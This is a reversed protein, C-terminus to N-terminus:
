LQQGEEPLRQWRSKARELYTPENSPGTGAILKEFGPMFAYKGSHNFRVRKVTAEWEAQLGAREFGHKASEFSELAAEYHKSKKGDLIRMGNARWLRAALEPYNDDLREAVPELVFYGLKELTADQTQRVLASLKELESTELLLSLHDSLHSGEAADIAKRHWEARETEPVYTMLESYAFTSPHECYDSWATELAEQGRGLEVLLKGQLKALSLGDMYGRASAKALDMGQDVWEMAEGPRGDAALHTAMAHCDEAVLGTAEALSQYAKLDKQALYLTRLGKSWYRRIGEQKNDPSGKRAAADFRGRAMAVFASLGAEDLVEALDREIQYCLAYPDDDMWAFLLTATEQPDAGAAQRAKIWGCFLGAVFPGFSGSSDDVEQIKEFCCALFTEYHTVAKVPDSAALAVIRAEIEELDDVYASCARDPIFKGPQLALELDREFPEVPPNPKRPM